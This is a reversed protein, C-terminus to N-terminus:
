AHPFPKFALGFCHRCPRGWLVVILCSNLINVVTM